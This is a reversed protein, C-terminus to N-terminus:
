ELIGLAGNKAGGRAVLYSLITYYEPTTTAINPTTRYFEFVNKMSEAPFRPLFFIDDLTFDRQPAAFAEKIYQEGQANEDRLFAIQAKRWPTELAPHKSMYDELIRAASENDGQSEKLAVLEAYADPRLGIAAADRLVSEAKAAFSSDVESRVRYMTGLALRYKLNTPHKAVASELKGISYDLYKTAESAPSQTLVVPLLVRLQNYLESDTYSRYAFAKDYETIFAAVNDPWTHITQLAVIGQQAAATVNFTGVKLVVLMILAVVSAIIMPGSRQTVEMSSEEQSHLESLFGVMAIVPFFLVYSTTTDFLTINQVFYGVLLSAATLKLLFDEKRGRFLVWGAMAFIGVYTILGVYGTTVLVEIQKSHVRDFWINKYFLMEPNYDRSFISLYSDPGWGFVPRQQAAHWAIEWNIIRARVGGTALSTEGLRRAAEISDLYGAKAAAFIGYFVVVAAVVVIGARKRATSSMGFLAMGIAAFVISAALGILAGRTGSMVVILVAFVLSSAYFKRWLANKDWLFLLLSMHGLMIFMTGMYTANGLTGAIRDKDKMLVDGIGLFQAVGYLGVYWGMLLAGRWFWVWEEKTRFFSTLMLYYLLFYLLHFLGEMREITSWFSQYQDISTFSSIAYVAMYALVALALMTPRFTIREPRLALLFLFAVLTVTLVIHLFEVKGVFFPFLTSSSIFIACFPAAILGWRVVHQLFRIVSDRESMYGM